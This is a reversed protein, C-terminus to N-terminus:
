RRGGTPAIPVFTESAGEGEWRFPRDDVVGSVETMGRLQLFSWDTARAGSVADGFRSGLADWVRTRVHVRDSGAVADVTIGAPVRVRRGRVVPGEHWGDYALSRIEFAGVFGGAGPGRPAWLFLVAPRVAAAGQEPGPIHIAGYLLAGAPSSAEGWDWTVGHWTGWNHDHYAPVGSLQLVTDGVRIEGTMTGRVAPVVYGSRLAADEGEVPPLYFGPAPVLRLDATLRPDRVTIRYTGSQVWIRAPGVRQAAATTSLDGPSVTAPIATDQVPAGPRRIRLWVAGHGEGDADLTLYGYTHTRPDWFNVYDWEAWSARDSASPTHFRDIGNYLTDSTPDLWARDSASDSAGRVAQPVGVAQDLSPVGAAAIALTTQGRVRVYVQRGQIEPAATTIAPAFRPGSLVERVAFAAHPISFYLGTVGNVRLVAPDVGRPLLVLDGGAALNPDRAEALLAEGVSLLSIMVGVGVGYGLLLLAARGPRDALSRWALLWAVRIV